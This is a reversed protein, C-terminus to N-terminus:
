ADVAIVAVVDVNNVVRSVVISGHQLVPADEEVVALVRAQNVVDTDSTVSAVLVTVVIAGRDLAVVDVEAARTHSRRSGAVDLGVRQELLSRSVVKSQTRARGSQAAGLAVDNRGGQVAICWIAGVSARAGAQGANRAPRSRAASRHGTAQQGLVEVLGAKASGLDAPHM